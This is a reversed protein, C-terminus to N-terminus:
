LRRAFSLCMGIAECFCIVITAMCKHLKLWVTELGNGFTDVCITDRLTNM